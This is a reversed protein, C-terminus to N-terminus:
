SFRQPFYLVEWTKFFIISGIKPDINQSYFIQKTKYYNQILHLNYNIEINSLVLIAQLTFSM